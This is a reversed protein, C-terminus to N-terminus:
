RSIRPSGVPTRGPLGGEMERRETIDRISEIAGTVTSEDYLPSAKAWFVQGAPRGPGPHVYGRRAREGGSCTPTSAELEADPIFVLNALM